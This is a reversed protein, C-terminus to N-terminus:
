CFGRGIYGALTIEFTLHASAWISKAVMEVSWVPEALQAIQQFADARSLSAFSLFVLVLLCTSQERATSPQRRLHSERQVLAASTVQGAHAVHLLTQVLVFSAVRLRSFVIIVAATISSCIAPAKLLAAQIEKTEGTVHVHLHSLSPCSFDPVAEPVTYAILSFM